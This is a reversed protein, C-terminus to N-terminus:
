ENQTEATEPSAAERFGHGASVHGFINLLSNDKSAQQDKDLVEDGDEELRRRM